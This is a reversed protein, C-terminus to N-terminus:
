NASGLASHGIGGHAVSGKHGSAYANGVKIIAGALDFKQGIKRAGEVSLHGADRYVFSGDISAHCAGDACIIDDLWFVPAVASLEHLFRYKDSYETLSDERRFNCLDTGKFFVTARALCQGIDLNNRPPPSVIILQKGQNSVTKALNMIQSLVIDYQGEVLTRGDRLHLQVDSNIISFPSSILVYKASKNGKIYDMVRDNFELCDRWSGMINQAAIGMVPACQSKTHQIFSLQTPSSQIGPALHMAYSDGWLIARPADDTRCHSSMTFSGECDVSLGYNPLLRSTNLADAFSVGAPTKRQPLGNLWHGSLGLSVFAAAAAASYAFVARRTPLVSSAGKRFPREVFRWSLYALALSFLALMVMLVPSPQVVSRIRAFAFVPQHWLYASYSILGIGVFGRMALLRAAISGASGFIIVLVTGGVPLLGYISPFPTSEDFLFISLLIMGLGLLSLADSPRRQRGNLHFACMSGALLEWARTPALYFNATPRNRWGWESLLLSFAATALIMWFVRNRGFRWALLLFVPFLLYYQEEVALSWTHLLPKLEASPAFYGEEKWFLINSAFFVVAVISQSFDKLEEPLMWMWAFPICCLIVFFLAPLIRRARREYFRAISFDGRELESILIGTILYGSIVFFVDVGVYGGSFVSLGAHFLIVPVVAVARLGDIEPRYSLANVFDGLKAHQLKARGHFM